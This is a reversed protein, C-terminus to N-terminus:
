PIPIDFILKSDDQYKELRKINYEQNIPLKSIAEGQKKRRKEAYTILQCNMCLTRYGEPYGNTMLWKYCQTGGPQHQGKSVPKRYLGSKREEGGKGNIHDITLCDLNDVGCLVCVAKGGGYHTMIHRKLDVGPIKPKKFKPPEGIPRTSIVDILISNDYSMTAKIPPSLRPFYPIGHAKCYCKRSREAHHHDYNPHALRYKRQYEANGM